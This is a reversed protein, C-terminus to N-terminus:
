TSRARIAAAIADALRSQVSVNDYDGSQHPWTRLDGNINGEAIKACAEREAALASRLREIEAAAEQCDRYSTAPAHYFQEEDMARLRKVIDM